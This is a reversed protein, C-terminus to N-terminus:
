VAGWVVACCICSQTSFLHSLHIHLMPKHFSVPKTPNCSAVTSVTLATM